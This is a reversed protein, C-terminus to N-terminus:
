FLQHIDRRILAMTLEYPNEKIEAMHALVKRSLDVGTAEEPLGAIANNIMALTDEKLKSLITWNEASVYLQQTINHQFESRVENLILVQLATASIGPQYLRIFLNAPNLRDTFVILREHAQLRLALLTNQEEKIGAETVVPAVPQSNGAAPRDFYKNLDRRIFCWSIIVISVTSLIPLLFPLILYSFNM